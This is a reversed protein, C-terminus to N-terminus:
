MQIPKLQFHGYRTDRQKAILVCAAFSYHLTLSEFVNSKLVCTVTGLCHEVFRITLRVELKDHSTAQENTLVDGSPM